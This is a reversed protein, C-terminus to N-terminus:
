VGLVDRYADKLTNGEGIKLEERADQFNLITVYWQFYNPNYKIELRGVEALYYETPVDTFTINTNGFLFDNSFDRVLNQFEEFTLSMPISWISM